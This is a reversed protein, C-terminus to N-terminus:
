NKAIFSSCELLARDVCFRQSAIELFSLNTPSNCTILLIVYNITKKRFLMLLVAHGRALVRLNTRSRM